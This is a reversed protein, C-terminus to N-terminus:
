GFPESPARFCLFEFSFADLHFGFGFAEDYPELLVWLLLQENCGGEHFGFALLLGPETYPGFRWCILTSGTHSGFRWCILDPGTHSGFSLCISAPGTHPDFNWCLLTPGAHPGFKWCLKSWRCRFTYCLWRSRMGFILLQFYGWFSRYRMIVYFLWWWM